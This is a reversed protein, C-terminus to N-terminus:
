IRLLAPGQRLLLGLLRAPCLVLDVRLDVETDEATFDCDVQVDKRRIRPPGTLLPQLLGWALRARGHRILGPGQPRDGGAEGLIGAAAGAPPPALGLPLNRFVPLYPKLNSWAGGKHAPKPKGAPKGAPRALPGTQRQDTKQVVMQIKCAAAAWRIPGGPLGDPPRFRRLRVRVGVPLVLLALLVALIGALIWLLVSGVSM